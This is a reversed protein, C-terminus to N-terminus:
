QLVVYLFVCIRFIYIQPHLLYTVVDLIPTGGRREM